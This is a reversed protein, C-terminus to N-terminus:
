RRRKPRRHIDTFEPHKRRIWRLFARLEPHTRLAEPTSYDRALTKEDLVAHIKRHCIRHM